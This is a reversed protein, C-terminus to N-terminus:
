LKFGESNSKQTLVWGVLSFVDLAILTNKTPWSVVSYTKFFFDIFHTM